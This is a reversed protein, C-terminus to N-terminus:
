PGSVIEAKSATTGDDAVTAKADVTTGADDYLSWTSSTQEKKNRFTKYLWAVMQEMTPSAPPATQGPLTTTDTRIVDVVEANVHGKATTSLGGLDTLGAGATGIQTQLDQTDTEIDTEKDRIAQLSDTTNVFTDWDATASSSVLKALISNDTIDTGSVAVNVLHDLGQAILGDDVESQVEADWAANWPIANLGAGASGIEATDVLVDSLRVAASNAVAHGTSLDEDWVTDAIEASADAALAAATIWNAPISPLTVANTVTTATNVLNTTTSSLNVSSSQNEVNGWDVGAAGTATVDLTNGPTTAEVPAIGLIAINDSAAATFTAGAALTVTKTSGVYDTILVRSWQAASAVDHIIAWMGNLVDNEAPGATLTFSTQSALTAITTNLVAEPYGISFRAIWGGTTVADVTVADIAVLYESGAAWFGATTNDSLDIVCLQKGTKTDFDTTATYGATSARETTGGDKYVLIDAAAYGTM